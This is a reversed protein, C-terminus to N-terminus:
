ITEQMPQGFVVTPLGDRVESELTFRSDKRRKWRTVLPQHAKVAEVARLRWAEKQDNPWEDLHAVTQEAWEPNLHLMDICGQDLTDLHGEEKFKRWHRWKSIAEGAAFMAVVGTLTLTVPTIGIALDHVDIVGGNPYPAM